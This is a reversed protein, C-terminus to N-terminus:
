RRPAQRVAVGRNVQERSYGAMSAYSRVIAEREAL